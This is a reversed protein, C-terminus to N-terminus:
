MRSAAYKWCTSCMGASSKPFNKDESFGVINNARVAMHSVFYDRKSTTFVNDYLFGLERCHWWVRDAVEDSCSKFRMFMITSVVSRSAPLCGLVAVVTLLNYRSGTAAYGAIFLSIPIAFFIVTRIVEYKKQSNIYNRKGRAYYTTFMRILGM